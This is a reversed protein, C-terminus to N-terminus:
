AETSLAALMAADVLVLRAFEQRIAGASILNALARQLSSRTMGILEALEAQTAGVESGDGALRLLVRALRARPTLALAEALVTMALTANRHSLAYFCPWWNPERALLARIADSPVRFVRAESAAHVSVTRAGDALLASEGIWFGREARYITVPEDGVLPLSLTLAGEALGYMADPADDAFYLPQGGTLARWQGAAAIRDRFASPQAALWGREALVGLHESASRLM